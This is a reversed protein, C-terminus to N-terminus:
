PCCTYAQTAIWNRDESALKHCEALFVSVKFLRYQGTARNSCIVLQVPTYPQPNMACWRHIPASDELVDLAAARPVIPSLGLGQLQQTCAEDRYQAHAVIGSLCLALFGGVVQKFM